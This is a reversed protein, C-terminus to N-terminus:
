KRMVEPEQRRLMRAVLCKEGLPFTVHDLLVKGKDVTVTVTLDHASLRVAGADVYEMLVDDVLHFTSPGIGILDQPGIPSRQVLRGNVYTGSRSGLDVIEYTGGASRLEAHQRSVRLDAIVMDNEPGRGIRVVQSGGVNRVQTPERYQGSMTQVIPSQPRPGHGPQGSQGGQRGPGPPAQYPVPGGYGPPTQPATGYPSPQQQPPVAPYPGPRGPASPAATPPAQGPYPEPAPQYGLPATGGAAQPPQPYQGPLGPQSPGAPSAAQWPREQQYPM